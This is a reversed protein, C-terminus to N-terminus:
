EFLTGRYLEDNWTLSEFLKREEMTCTHGNFAVRNATINFHGYHNNFALRVTTMVLSEGYYFHEIEKVALREYAKENFQTVVRELEESIEYGNSKVIINM